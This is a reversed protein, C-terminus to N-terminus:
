EYPQRRLIPLIFDELASRLALDRASNKEFNIPFDYEGLGFPDSLSTNGPGAVVIRYITDKNDVVPLQVPASGVGQLPMWGAWWGQVSDLISDVQPSLRNAVSLDFDKFAVPTQLGDKVQSIFVHARRKFTNTLIIGNIPNNPDEGVTVGSRAGEPSVTVAQSGVIAPFLAARVNQLTQAIQPQSISPSEGAGVEEAVTQALANVEPATALKALLRDQIAGPLYFAALDYYLLVEATTRSSITPQSSSVWGLLVPNGAKDEVEALQPGGQFVTIQGRGSGDLTASGLSTALTLGSARVGIPLLVSVSLTQRNLNLPNPPQQGGGCAGLALVIASLLSLALLFARTTRRM